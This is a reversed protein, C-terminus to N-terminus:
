PSLLAIAMEREYWNPVPESSRYASEFLGYLKCYGIGHRLIASIEKTALPLIKLGVTTEAYDKGYYRRDVWSRFDGVVSPHLFTSVFVCYAAEDGTSLIHEGLHRSVPEMEMRRQNSNDTLTAELLLTHAPYDATQEYIYEIDANGGAAHTRPLLDAELSLNMYNLVDGKRDSIIYWAIGLVYEFITPIDANNTVIQRIANDERREFKGFLDILTERNFQEDVLKNFRCYRGNTIVAKADNASTIKIGYLREVEAYLNREDIALRPAIAVLPVDDALSNSATFAIELLSNEVSAFWCRPLVDLEVKSDAFIVTDTTKFYRRNLDAYDSLTAKAKFLHMQTFFLQKFEKENTARLLPVENLAALGDRLLKKRVTTSFLYQRWLTASKGKIAKTSEYLQLIAKADKKLAIKRLLEYFLFYPKDYAMVGKEGSKRNMGIATIVGKTAKHNLFYEIASKYNDMSMLRATIIEDITGDGNRLREIARISIETNDEATCLPLLYTFEDDTLYNLRSLAYAAVVFPRVINGDINNSTKLLQKLYIFSDAPIQLPNNRSFDGRLSIGLLAAGVSTLKRESNILGIAALGATKERSDKE